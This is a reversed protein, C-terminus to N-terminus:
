TALAAGDASFDISGVSRAHGDIVVVGAREELAFIRAGGVNDCAVYQRSDASFASGQSRAGSGRLEIPEGEVAPTGGNRRRWIRTQGDLGSAATRRGGPSFAAQRLGGRLQDLTGLATGAGRQPQASGDM